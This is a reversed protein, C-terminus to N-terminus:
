LFFICVLNNFLVFVCFLFYYLVRDKIESLLKIKCYLYGVLLLIVKTIFHFVSLILCKICYTRHFFYLLLYKSYSILRFCKCLIFFIKIRIHDIAFNQIKNFYYITANLYIVLFFFLERSVWNLNLCHMNIVLYFLSIAFEIIKFSRHM